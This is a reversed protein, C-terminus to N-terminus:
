PGGDEEDEGGGGGGGGRGDGRREGLVLLNVVVNVVYVLNCM